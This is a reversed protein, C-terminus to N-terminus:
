PTTEALSRSQARRRSTAWVVLPIAYLPVDQVSYFAGAPHTADLLVRIYDPWMPLFLLSLAAIVALGIWWRRDRIGFLALPAVTVKTVLLVAPWRYITAAALAAVLWIGPNGTLMLSATPPSALFAAVTAVGLPSPRHYAIVAGVVGLPILWWLPWPAASAPVFLLLWTPPYLVDGEQIIYPGQLQRDLYFGTGRLWSQAADSYIRLDIGALHRLNEPPATIFQWAFMAVFAIALMYAVIAALRPGNLRSVPEDAV